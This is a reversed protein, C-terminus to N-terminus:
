KVGRAIQVGTKGDMEYENYSRYYVVNFDELYKTQIDGKLYFDILFKHGADYDKDSPMIFVPNGECGAVQLGKHLALYGLKKGRYEPELDLRSLVYVKKVFYSEEDYYKSDEDDCVARIAEGVEYLDQNILDCTSAYNVWSPMSVIKMTGIKVNEQKGYGEDYEYFITVNHDFISAPEYGEAMCVNVTTYCSATLWDIGVKGEELLENFSSKADTTEM